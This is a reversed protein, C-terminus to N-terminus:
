RQLIRGSKMWPIMIRAIEEYLPARLLFLGLMWIVFFAIGALMLVKVANLTTLAPDLLAVLGAPIAASPIAILFAPVAARMAMQASVDSLRHLQRYHLGAGLVATVLWGLAIAELGYPLLVVVTVVRIPAMVLAVRFPGTVEGLATLLPPVLAAASWVATALALPKMAWAADVWQPGFILLLVWKSLLAALTLGPVVLATLCSVGYLFDDRYSGEQIKRSFAPLLVPRIAGMVFDSFVRGPLLAKNFFALSSMGLGKGIILEPIDRNLTGLVATGSVYSGFRLMAGAGRLSPRHWIRARNAFAVGVVMTLVSAVSGWALSVAGWGAMALVIAVTPQIVASGTNIALIAGFRLDRTLLSLSIAGFPVFLFSLAQVRLVGALAPEDYLAAVAGAALSLLIALSWAVLLMLTFATRLKGEDLEPQRIIYQSIGFDRFIQAVNALVAAIAYMGIEAPSLVRALVINSVILTAFQVYKGAASLGFSRRISRVPV